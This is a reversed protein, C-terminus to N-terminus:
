NQNLLVKLNDTVVAVFWVQKGNRQKYKKLYRLACEFTEKPDLDSSYWNDHGIIFEDGKKIILDGGLIRVGHEVACRMFKVAINFTFVPTNYGQERLDIVEFEQDWFRKIM